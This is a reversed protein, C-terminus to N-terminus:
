IRSRLALGQGSGRFRLALVLGLVRLPLEEYLNRAKTAQEKRQRFSHKQGTGASSPLRPSSMSSVSWTCHEGQVRCGVGQVRCGAGQVKCGAGQGGQGGFGLFEPSVVRHLTVGTMM